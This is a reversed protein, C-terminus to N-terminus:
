NEIMLLESTGTKEFEQYIPAPLNQLTLVGRGIDDIKQQVRLFLHQATSAIYTVETFDVTINAGVTILAVLEDQIDHVTESRLEGVLKVVVGSDMEQEFITLISTQGDYIVISDGEIKRNLM